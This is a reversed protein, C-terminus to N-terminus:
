PQYSYAAVWDIQVNGATADSPVVGYTSTETQLVWHMPTDPIPGTSRGVVQGDLYFTVATPTWETTATHWSTFTAGTTYLDQSTGSISGQPHLAADITGNLPAEPFDMEGDTPWNGSDPWLLWATKYGPLSDARFRVTYRGYLQGKLPQGPFLIPSPAAVLHVGSPSTHLYMNLVGGSVSLVMSPYYEGNGSTDRTGDGYNTWKSGYVSGPFSGLPVDTSFDETFIQHWGPLDGVPMPQGSPDGLSTTTATPPVPTDTYTPTPPVPTATYTATPPVPTPTYTPTPPVPTATYTATPPVPTATRTSTPRVRTATRTPTPRVRAATRTATLTTSPPSPDSTPAFVEANIGTTGISFGLNFQVTNRSGKLPAALSWNFGQWGQTSNASRSAQQYVPSIDLHLGFAIKHDPTSKAWFTLTYTAASAIQSPDRRLPAIEWAATLVAVTAASEAGKSATAVSRSGAPSLSVAFPHTSLVGRLPVATAVLFTLLGAVIALTLLILTTSRM